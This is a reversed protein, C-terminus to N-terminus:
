GYRSRLLGADEFSVGDRMCEQAREMDKHLQVLTEDPLAEIGTYGFCAQDIIEQMAMGWRRRYHRIM